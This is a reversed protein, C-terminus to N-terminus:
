GGQGNGDPVKTVPPGPVIVVTPQQPQSKAATIATSLTTVLGQLNTNIEQPLKDISDSLTSVQSQTSLQVALLLGLAAFILGTVAVSAWQFINWSGEIRSLRGHLDHDAMAGFTDSGGGSNLSEQALEASRQANLAVVNSFPDTM